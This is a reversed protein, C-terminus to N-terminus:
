ITGDEYWRKNEESAKDDELVKMLAQRAEQETGEFFVVETGDLATNHRTIVWKEKQM